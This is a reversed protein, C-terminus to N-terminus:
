ESGKPHIEDVRQVSWEVRNVRAEKSEKFEDLGWGADGTCSRQM